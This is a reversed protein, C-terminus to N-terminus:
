YPFGYTFNPPLVILYPDEDFIEENVDSYGRVGYKFNGVSDAVGEALIIDRKEEPPTPKNSSPIRFPVSYPKSKFGVPRDGSFYLEIRNPILNTGAFKPDNILSEMSSSVRIVFRVKTKLTVITTEPIVLPFGNFELIINTEIAM